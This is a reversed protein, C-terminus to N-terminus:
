NNGKRVAPKGSDQAPQTAAPPSADGANAPAAEPATAPAPEPAPAFWATIATIEGADLKATVHKSKPTYSYLGSNLQLRDLAIVSPTPQGGDNVFMQAHDIGRLAETNWHILLAGDLESTTLTLPPRPMWSDRTFFAAAGAALLMAATALVLPLKGRRRKPPLSIPVGFLRSRNVLSSSPRLATEADSGADSGTDVLGPEVLGIIIDALKTEAARAAELPPSKEAAGPAEAVKPAPPGIEIIKPAAPMPAVPKAVMPEPEVPASAAMGAGPEAAVAALGANAAPRWEDVDCEVGKVVAGNKDRFFFAARMSELVSPRLVLAVQGTGPFLEAYFRLDAENLVADGRAKSCYWGIVGVKGSVSLAGAEAVMERSQRREDATLNFSPGASHSCPLDVSDLLRIRARERVGLLLGGVGMGIRPAAMLGDRARKRIQEMAAQSYEIRLPSRPDSLYVTEHM